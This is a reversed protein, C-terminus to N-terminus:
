SKGIPFRFKQGMWASNPCSRVSCCLDLGCKAVVEGSVGGADRFHVPFGAPMAFRVV